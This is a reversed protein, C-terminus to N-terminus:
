AMRWAAPSDTRKWKIRSASSSILSSIIGREADAVRARTGYPTFDGKDSRITPDTVQRLGEVPERGTTYKTRLRRNSASPENTLTRIPLGDM